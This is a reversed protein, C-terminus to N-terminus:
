SQATQAEVESTELIRQRIRAKAVFMDYRSQKFWRRYNLVHEETCHLEDEVGLMALQLLCM